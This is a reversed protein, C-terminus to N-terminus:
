YGSGQYMCGSLTNSYDVSETSWRKYRTFKVRFSIFFFITEIDLVGLMMEFPAEIRHDVMTSLQWARDPSRYFLRDINFPMLNMGTNILHSINSSFNIYNQYNSHSNFTKSKLHWESVIHTQMSSRIAAIPQRSLPSQSAGNVPGRNGGPMGAWCTSLWFCIDAMLLWGSFCWFDLFVGVRRVVLWDFQETKVKFKTKYKGNQPSLRFKLESERLVIVQKKGGILRRRM